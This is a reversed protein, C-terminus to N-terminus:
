DKRVISQLFAKEFEKWAEDRDREEVGSLYEELLPRISLNWLKTVPELAKGNCDWLYSRKRPTLTDMLFKTVDLLYTHGVEYQSGLHNSRSIKNNLELAADALKDFDQWVQAWDLGSSLKNWRGEAASMFEEKDFPCKQWLFRRRLAFDIQQISQDILNMTGIIFLDGPIKLTIQPEGSNRGPLVVSEDRDELLSFCEGLMRSLDTRNIEDLILIYPLRTARPEKNIEDILTLLIGPRYETKGVESIHLGRIFDEYSYAPHLQLRLINKTLAANIFEQSQSQFYKAAGWADLASRRLIREALAKARFTKGTGPPGYLIVQKKYLINELSVDKDLSEKSGNNWVIGLPKEYFDLNEEPLLKELEARIALLQKDDEKEQQVVLGDFTNIIERKHTGSCIREFFDPFLMHLLMHRLQKSEAGEISDIQNKFEWPEGVLRHRDEAQLQKWKIAFNILFALESPRRMSYGHGAGGIGQEFAQSVLSDNLASDHGWSLVQNVGGLKTSATLNDPFLFYVMLLEAALRCCDRGLHEIQDKFKDLFERKSEDPRDIFAVKIKTLLESTWLNSGDFLLSGDKILCQERFKEVVKYINDTEPSGFQAM